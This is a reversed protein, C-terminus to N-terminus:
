GRSHLNDSQSPRFNSPIMPTVLRPRRVLEVVDVFIDLEQVSDEEDELLLRQGEEVGVVM